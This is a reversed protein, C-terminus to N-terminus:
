KRKRGTRLFREKSGPLLVPEEWVFGLEEAPPEPGTLLLARPALRALTGAMEGYAVARSVVVDFSERIDEGRRAEVRLNAIGRSAERLFVAKRQHAEILTVACDPRAIAVPFGPFGAGSGLDAIALAGEPLRGALFLAEGYHRDVAERVDRIATLNLVRNWRRLLEYHRELAAIQEGSM